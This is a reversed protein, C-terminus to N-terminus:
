GSRAAPEIARFLCRFEVRHNFRFTQLERQWPGGEPTQRGREARFCLVTEATSSGDHQATDGSGSLPQPGTRLLTGLPYGIM